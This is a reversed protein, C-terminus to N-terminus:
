CDSNSKGLPYREFDSKKTFFAINTKRDRCHLEALLVTQTVPHINVAVLM